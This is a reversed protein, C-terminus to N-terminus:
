TIYSICSSWIMSFTALPLRFLPYITEFLVFAGGVLFLTFTIYSVVKTGKWHCLVLSERRLISQTNFGYVDSAVCRCDYSEFLALSAILYEHFLQLEFSCM